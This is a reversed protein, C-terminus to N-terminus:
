RDFSIWTNCLYEHWLLATNRLMAYPSLASELNEPQLSLRHNIGSRAAEFQMTTAMQANDVRSLLYEQNASLQERIHLDMNEHHENILAKMNELMKMIERHELTLWCLIEHQLKTVCEKNATVMDKDLSKFAETFRELLQNKPLQSIDFVPRSMHRCLPCKITGSDCTPLIQGLCTDCCAHGFHLLKSYEIRLPWSCIPCDLLENLPRKCSIFMGALFCLPMLRKDVFWHFM